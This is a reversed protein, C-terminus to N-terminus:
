APSRSALIIVRSGRRYQEYDDSAPPVVEVHPFGFHRLLYKVANLSPVLALDTSGGERGEPYDTTLAFMGDVNRQWEYSGDEIRGSLDYPFVQTELLVHRKGLQTATRLLKIPSEVHYLLGFLLIFDAPEATLFQSSQVDATEFRVNKVNLVDAILKAADISQSRFDYGTVHQLRRAMEIAFYGEHCGLDLATFTRAEDGFRDIVSILKDRRCRHIEIVSAPLDCITKEGTPLDFEYFWLRSRVEDLKSPNPSSM